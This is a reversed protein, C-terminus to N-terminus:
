VLKHEQAKTKGAHVEKCELQLYSCCFIQQLAADRLSWAISQGDRLKSMLENMLKNM